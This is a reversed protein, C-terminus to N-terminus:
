DRVSTLVMSQLQAYTILQINHDRLCTKIAPDKLAELEHERQINYSSGEMLSSDSYGPHCMVESNGAPLNALIKIFNESTALSDYFSSYFNEPRRPNFQRLFAPIFELSQDGLEPPLDLPLDSGGEALPPRIACDLEGAIELMIQFMSRSFYSTHHHSDLHDPKKGTLRVFKQIQAEWEKRVQNVDLEPILKIFQTASPFLHGGGTLTPVQSAPLVPKGATLVLHVGLGMLPCDKKAEELGIEIGPMNMMATTSTVIGHLHASRIGASVGPTRGYDDANVILRKIMKDLM